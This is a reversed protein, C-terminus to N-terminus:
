AAISSARLKDTAGAVANAAESIEALHTNIHDVGKAAMHMNSSIGQTVVGQEEVAAAIRSSIDNIDSIMTTIQRIAGEAATTELQVSNILNTVEATATSTQDALAKVEGAVVAFGKGAEGARAAEITANLALLNTKAAISSILNVVQGIKETSSVLRMVIENTHHSQNVANSTTANAESVRQSIERISSTLEAAASAVARVNTNAVKSAEASSDVLRTTSQMAAVINTLDSNIVQQLSTREQRQRVAATIDSAYKVVSIVRGAYDLIPNYSAQLWIERRNRGFRQFEGAHYTGSALSKWLEAYAATSQEAPAIFMRHHQGQIEELSYGVCNLFNENATVITGDPKFRIVAQSKNIAAIQGEVFADALKQETIETCYKIIKYVKGDSGILPNYTSQFWIENYKKGYHLFQQAVFKGSRLQEWMERYAQTKRENPHIFLSHHKGVLDHLDYSMTSLFKANAHLINGDIDFEVVGQARDLSDIKAQLDKNRLLM